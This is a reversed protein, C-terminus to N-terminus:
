PSAPAAGARPCTRRSGDRSRLGSSRPKPHTPWTWSLCPVRGMSRQALPHRASARRSRGTLHCRRSHQRSGKRVPVVSFSTHGHRPAFGGTACGACAWSRAVPQSRAVRTGQVDLGRSRVSASAPRQDEPTARTRGGAVRDSGIGRPRWLLYSWPWAVTSSRASGSVNSGRDNGRRPVGLRVLAAAARPADERGFPTKSEMTDSAPRSPRGTRFWVPWSIPRNSSTTARQASPCTYGGTLPRTIRTPRRRAKTGADAMSRIPWASTTRREARSSRRSTMRREPSTSSALSTRSWWSTSTSPTCTM